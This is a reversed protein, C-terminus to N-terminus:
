SGDLWCGVRSRFLYSRPQILGVIGRKRDGGSVRLLHKGKVSSDLQTRLIFVPSSSIVGSHSVTDARDSPSAVDAPTAWAM